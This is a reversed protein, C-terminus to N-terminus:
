ILLIAFFEIFASFLVDRALASKKVATRQKKSLHWVSYLAELDQGGLRDGTYLRCSVVWLFM